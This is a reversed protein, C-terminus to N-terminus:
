AGRYYCKILITLTHNALGGFALRNDIRFVCNIGDLTKNTPTVFLSFHFALHNWELNHPSGRIIDLHFHRDGPALVAWLLDRGHHQGLELVIRLCVQTLRDRLGHNGDRGIKVIALTLSRFIRALDGAQFHHANDVLRGCGRQRIAQILFLVLGDQDEVQTASREVNGHQFHALAHDLDFGGVTVRVQAAIVPVLLDDVPRGVLELLILADVQAIVALRELTQAFRRFFGLDFKRGDHLGFDVQRIDRSVGAAGFMQLQLESAGFELLHGFVQEVAAFDREFRCKFIRIHTGAIQVLDNQYTPRSTHRHDLIQHALQGIPFLRMFADIGIFHHSDTRGNM